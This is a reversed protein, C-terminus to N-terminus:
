SSHSPCTEEEVALILQVADTHLDYSTDQSRPLFRASDCASFFRVAQEIRALPWGQQACFDAIERPTPEAINMELRQQLYGNVIAAIRTAHLEPSLRQASQLQQLAQRAARSRRQHAQRVADPYLRCWCMYWILCGIPPSLFLALCLGIGPPTWHTQCDLVDSGTALVFAREPAQVPVQVTEHPLVRLPIPDTYQVQFGKSATLLYPNFSVFPLSPIERVEPRRPKLRYAFEWTQEDPRKVEEAVDEIFFAEEFAPLQRLDLWQPPQRAPRLARVILTFTLPTEAEITTPEARAQVDFWGSAESFPLDSPRGVV